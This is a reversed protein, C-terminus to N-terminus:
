AFGSATSGTSVRYSGAWCCLGSRSLGRRPLRSSPQNGRRTDGSEVVSGHMRRRESFAAAPEDGDETGGHVVAPSYSEFCRALTTLNRVFTSWVM